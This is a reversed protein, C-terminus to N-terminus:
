VLGKRGQVRGQGREFLKGPVVHDLHLRQGVRRRPDLQHHLGGADHKVLPGLLNDVGDLHALLDVVVPFGGFPQQIVRGLEQIHQQEVVLYTYVM